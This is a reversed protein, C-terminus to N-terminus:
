VEHSNQARIAQARVRRFAPIGGLKPDRKVPYAANVLPNSPYVCHNRNDTRKSCGPCISLQKIPSAAM